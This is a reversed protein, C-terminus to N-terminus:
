GRIRSKMSLGINIKEEVDQRQALIIVIGSFIILMIGMFSTMEPTIGWFLWGFLGVSILYAYEYIAAYSTKTLQYARTMLSLAISAGAAIVLMWLWFLDDVRQWGKFLFPAQEILNPSVPFVSLATTALAGCIGISVIFSMLISLSSEDRLYRYTIISGMAYCAGAMVPLMHYFSFGDSGPRLVLIVGCTGTIVAFIRRWGIHEQFLFSSFILVFIPSTFLGAGAEAIPMMPMVGFYLLMSTCMFFTRALVPKWYRPIVPLNFLRSLVLVMFVAFISRSFHFQGVGVQDSVLLTLNDSFGFISIGSVLLVAGRTAPQVSNLWAL